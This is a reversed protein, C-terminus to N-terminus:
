SYEGQTFQRFAQQYGYKVSDATRKHDKGDHQFHLSQNIEVKQANGGSPSLAPVLPRVGHIMSEVYDSENQAKHNHNIVSLFKMVSDDISDRFDLVKKLTSDKGFVANDKATHKGSVDDVAVGSLKLLKVVGETIYALGKFVKIKEALITLAEVLHIVSTTMLSIDRIIQGGHRANFRGVAMEISTGLNSWAINARDLAKIEGESYTPAKGFAQPNFANRRMAAIVGESIGFSKLVANGVDAPASKAFKQLQEMVYFSDRARNADFGVRNALLAMGEPAGKGLLMNTMAGQVAKISGTFDENAVGAQRAAYQWQQLQKTSLNTLSNFNTLGTGMAGSAAFLRELAYVTGVIAAKTELSMSKTDGLQKKIDSLSGVTKDAGKIGLNVFLEAVTM